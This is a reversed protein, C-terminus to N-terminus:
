SFFFIHNSWFIMLAFSILVVAATAWGLGYARKRETPTQPERDLMLRGLIFGTIGGGLHAMNDIGPFFFGWLVLYIIWRYVYSRLQQMGAGGRRFTIALLVGILGVLAGSAGISFHGFFGSLIYGGVGTVIYIFLFRASGYLEELVPGLDILVWMNFGIHMLNAHLFCATVFRWPQALDFALPMSAGLRQLVPTSVGGIGFLTDLIGGGEPTVSAGSHITLLLSIGYLLCCVGLILYTVPANAPMYKSLSRSMAAMSFTLSAGCQHCRNASSGVLTGCAPCLRPRRQKEKSGFMSSFGERVRDIKWRWRLPLPM